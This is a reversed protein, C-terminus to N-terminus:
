NFAIGPGFYYIDGSSKTGNTPAYRAPISENEEGHEHEESALGHDHEGFEDHDGDPGHSLVVFRASRPFGYVAETLEMLRIPDGKEKQGGFFLNIHNFWYQQSLRDM